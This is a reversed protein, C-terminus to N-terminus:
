RRHFLYAKKIQNIFTLYSPNERRHSGHIGVSEYSHEAADAIDAITTHTTLMGGQNHGRTVSTEDSIECTVPIAVTPPHALHVGVAIHKPGLSALFGQTLHGIMM